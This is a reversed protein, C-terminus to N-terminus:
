EDETFLQVHFMQEGFADKFEPMPTRTMWVTLVPLKITKPDPEDDTQKKEQLVSTLSTYLWWTANTRAATTYQIAPDPAVVRRVVDLITILKITGDAQASVAIIVDPQNLALPMAIPNREDDHKCAGLYTKIRNIGSKLNQNRTFVVPVINKTGRLRDRSALQQLLAAPLLTWPQLLAPDFSQVPQADDDDRMPKDAGQEQVRRKKRRGHNAGTDAAKVTHEDSADGLLIPLTPGESSYPTASPAVVSHTQEASSAVIDSMHKAKAM